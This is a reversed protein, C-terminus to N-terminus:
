EVLLTRRSLIFQKDCLGKFLRQMTRSRSWSSTPRDIRNKWATACATLAAAAVDIALWEQHVSWGNTSINPVGHNTWVIAFFVSNHAWVKMVFIVNHIEAIIPITQFSNIGAVCYDSM